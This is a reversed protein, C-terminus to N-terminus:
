RKKIKSTTLVPLYEDSIGDAYGQDYVYTMLMVLDEYAMDIACCNRQAIKDLEKLIEKRLLNNM